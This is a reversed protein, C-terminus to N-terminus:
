GRPSLYLTADLVDVVLAGDRGGIVASRDRTVITAIPKV